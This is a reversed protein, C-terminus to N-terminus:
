CHEAHEGPFEKQPGEAPLQSDLGSHMLPLILDDMNPMVLIKQFEHQLKKEIWETIHIFTVEREGLKPRVKLDLRKAGGRLIKRGTSNGSIHGEAGPPTSREGASRSPEMTPVDEEDSSGASSSEADSDALLVWHPKTTEEGLTEKGLKYLNLKTELSMQLSGSYTMDMDLWLGRSDLTPSSASLVRPISSGMDLETLTLENMFYPLKIRGLKKQIKNSVHDAWYKERLFDWFMRGLVANVWAMHIERSNMAEELFKRPTPSGATSACPSESPSASNGPPVIQSMYTHYDLLVKERLNVALEKPKIASRLEETSERSSNGSSCPGKPVNHSPLVSGPLEGAITSPATCRGARSAMALHQFWEEKDRGTRGFLYLTREQPESPHAPPSEPSPDQRKEGPSALPGKGSPDVQNPFLICVPYKKNWMRKRALGPPFLFVKAGSMDYHRHNVFAVDFVEEEFTARRPINSKPYSLTVNSGELTVFVSHTLSPHYLEPDYFYMENMWGQSSVISNYKHFGSINRALMFGCLAGLFLGSVYPPLPLVFYNYALIAICALAKCPVRGCPKTPRPVGLPGLARGGGTGGAKDQAVEVVRIVDGESCIEYRCSMCPAWKQEASFCLEGPERGSPPGPRDTGRGPCGDRAELLTSEGSHGALVDCAHSGPLPAKPKPAASNEDGMIKSLRSLPEQMAESFRRKTDEFKAEQAKFFSGKSESPSINPSSPATRSDGNKCKPHTIQRWRHVNLKSDSKSQTVEPELRSIETSISKVLSLLPQPTLPSAERLEIETSLSKVLNILPKAGQTNVLGASKQPSFNPSSSVPLPPLFDTEPSVPFPPPVHFIPEAQPVEHKGTDGCLSFPNEADPTAAEEDDLAFILENGHVGEWDEEKGSDALYSALTQSCSSSNGQRSYLQPSSRPLSPGSAIRSHDAM